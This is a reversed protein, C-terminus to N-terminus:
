CHILLLKMYVEFIVESTSGCIISAKLVPPTVQSLQAFHDRKQVVIELCFFILQICGSDISHLHLAHVEVEFIRAIAVKLDRYIALSDTDLKFCLKTRQKDDDLRSIKCPEAKWTNLFKKLETVYGALNHRDSDTGYMQIVDELIEFDLFSWFPSVMVFIEDVSAARRLDEQQDALLMNSEREIVARSTRYSTLLAVLSLLDVTKTISKKLSVRTATQLHAFKREMTKIDNTLQQKDDSSHKRKERPVTEISSM